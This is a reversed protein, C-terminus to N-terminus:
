TLADAIKLVTRWNRGTAKTALAAEIRAATLKSRGIGEPYAIYAVTGRVVATEPGTIAADLAARREADPADRLIMAVLHSPDSAALEPFPLEAVLTAWAGATRVFVKTTVGLRGSLAAELRSELEAATADSTFVLNGTQLFTAPAQLGAEAAAFRLDSMALTGRGGVNVARLLAVFAPM